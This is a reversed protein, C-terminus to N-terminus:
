NSMIDMIRLEQYSGISLPAAEAVSVLSLILFAATLTFVGAKAAVKLLHAWAPKTSEPARSEAALILVKEVPDGALAALRFCVEDSPTVRGSMVYCVTSPPLDLKQALKTNSTIGKRTKVENIYKEIPRM